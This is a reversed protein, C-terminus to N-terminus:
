EVGMWRRLRLRTILRQQEAAERAETDADNKMRAELISLIEPGTRGSAFVIFTRDFKAEYERNAQELRHRVREDDLEVRSQERGSWALSRATTAAGAHREGIRPHSDFAERWDKEGLGWWVADSAALVEAEGSLPRRLVLGRAWARSGCCPLVEAAAANADLGNWRALVDNMTPAIM